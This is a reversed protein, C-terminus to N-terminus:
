VEATPWPTGDPKFYEIRTTGDPDTVVQYQYWTKNRYKELDLGTHNPRRSLGDHCYPSTTRRGLFQSLSNEDPDINPTTM